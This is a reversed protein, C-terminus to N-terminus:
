YSKHIIQPPNKALVIAGYLVIDDGLPTISIEPVRNITYAKIQGLIPDLILKPNHLAIAGGVSIKEPDYVTNINAFGIANIRGIERVIKLAYEDGARALYFINETTLNDGKILERIRGGLFRSPNTEVLYKVFSPINRGSCYAEWHGRGGCGCMMRGDIDVVIHGVEVANGDKGILLNGDVIAGGGIGSSLTVYFLNSSDKGVGFIKEGLVATTCDNLIYVPIKFEEKLSERLPVEGVPLNVPNLLVGRRYDLPGISGVGISQIKELRRGGVRRILSCIQRILKEGDTDRLTNEKIKKHIKYTSDALAVRINTAGLDVGIFFRLDRL